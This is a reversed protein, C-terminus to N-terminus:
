ACKGCGWSQALLILVLRGVILAVLPSAIYTQRALSPLLGTRCCSLSTATRNPSLHRVKVCRKARRSSRKCGGSRATNTIVATITPIPAPSPATTKLHSM